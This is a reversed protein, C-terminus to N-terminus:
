CTPSWVGMPTNGMSVPLPIEGIDGRPPEATGLRALAAAIRDQYLDLAAPSGDESHPEQAERNADILKWGRATVAYYVRGESDARSDLWGRVLAPLAMQEVTALEEQHHDGWGRGDNLATEPVWVDTLLEARRESRGGVERLTAVGGEEDALGCLRRAAHDAADSLRVSLTKARKPKRGVVLGAAVLEELCRQSRKRGAETTEASAWPVGGAAFSRRAAYTNAPRPATWDRLPLWIADTAALIGVLVSNEIKM